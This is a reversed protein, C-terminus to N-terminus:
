PYKTIWKSTGFNLTLSNLEDEAIISYVIDVTISNLTENYLIYVNDVEIRPEYKILINKINEKLKDADVISMNEFLYDNIGVTNDINYFKDKLNLFILTKISQNIAKKDEVLVLNGSSPHARFDFSLDTIKLTKRMKRQKNLKTINWL